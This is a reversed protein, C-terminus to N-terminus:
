ELYNKHRLYDMLLTLKKFAFEAKSNMIPQAIKAKEVNFDTDKAPSYWIHGNGYLQEASYSNFDEIENKLDLFLKNLNKDSTKNSVLGCEQAFDITKGIAEKKYGYWSDQNKIDEHFM